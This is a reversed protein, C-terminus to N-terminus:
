ILSAVAEDVCRRYREWTFEKAQSRAASSLLPLLERNNHYWRLSEVLAEEDGTPVIHGCADTLVDPGATSDSAIAPLGCAMAELLVLGFGEFFSPFVFLDANRYRERLEFSSCPPLVRVNAPLLYRKQEALQWLGVLELSANPIAAKEWAEILGPIGKRISIQGAYIFRLVDQKKEENGPSWFDLDVGYPALATTKNPHFMRITKEVFTSPLLVLDALQMEQRKQDGRVHRLSQLADPKLWDAYKKSLSAQTEEWAPYYGIPMDYICAKGRRTAEVFQTLSCDEYAHVATVDSHQCERFMTRMLWDNAEQSLHEHDMGLARILLRRFEGTRGQIKRAGSLPLFHRRSLRGAM